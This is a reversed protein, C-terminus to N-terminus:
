DDFLPGPARGTPDLLFVKYGQMMWWMSVSLQDVEHQMLSAHAYVDDGSCLDEASAAGADGETQAPEGDWSAVFQMAARDSVEQPILCLKALLELLGIKLVQLLEM